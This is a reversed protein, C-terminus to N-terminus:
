HTKQGKYRWAVNWVDFCIDWMGVMVKDNVQFEM